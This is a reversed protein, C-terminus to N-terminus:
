VRVEKALFYQVFWCVVSSTDYSTHKWVIYYPHRQSLSRSVSCPDPVWWRSRLTGVGRSPRMTLCVLDHRISVDTSLCLCLPLTM